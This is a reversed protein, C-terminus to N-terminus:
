PSSAPLKPIEGKELTGGHGVRRAGFIRKVTATVDHSTPGSPKDLNVIGYNLHMEIPRNRPEHGYNPDTEGEGRELVSRHIEWPAGSVAGKSKGRRMTPEVEPLRLSKMRNIKPPSTLDPAVCPM